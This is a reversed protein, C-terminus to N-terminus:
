VYQFYWEVKDEGDANGAGLYREDRRTQVRGPLSGINRSVNQGDQQFMTSAVACVTVSFDEEEQIEDLRRRFMAATLLM